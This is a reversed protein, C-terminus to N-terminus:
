KCEVFTIATDQYIYCSFSRKSPTGDQKAYKCKLLIFGQEIAFNTMFVRKYNCVNVNDKYRITLDVLKNFFPNYHKNLASLTTEQINYYNSIIQRIM